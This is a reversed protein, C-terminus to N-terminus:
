EEDISDFDQEEHLFQALEPDLDEVIAYNGRSWRLLDINRCRESCFPFTDSVKGTEIPIDGNCIACTQRKIM